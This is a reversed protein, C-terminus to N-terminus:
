PRLGGAIGKVVICVADHPHLSEVHAAEIRYDAIRADRDLAAKLRRGADECFMQNHANLRAFEREDERKVAAQVATALASEAADVLEIFGPADDCDAVAVDIDAHSRQSHPTAVLSADDDLWAAVDAPSVLQQAGFDDLFRERVLQRALATSCPCTSSYTVRVHLTYCAGDPGIEGGIAVPYSRWAANGSVLSPRKVLHDFAIRVAARTSAGGQSAVFAQLVQRVLPLDLVHEELRAQLALYLRSMHIGRAAPDDLSVFADAKAPALITAGDADRLRVPVEIGTMGVKDLAGGLAGQGQHASDSM